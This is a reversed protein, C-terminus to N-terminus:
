ISRAHSSCESSDEGSEVLEGEEVEGEQIEFLANVEPPLPKFDKPNGYYDDLEMSKRMKRDQLYTDKRELPQGKEVRKFGLVYAAVQGQTDKTVWKCCLTNKYPQKVFDKFSSKVQQEVRSPRVPESDGGLHRKLLLHYHYGDRGKKKSEDRCEFSYLYSEVWDREDVFKDLTLKLKPLDGDRYLNITVWYFASKHYTTEIKSLRTETSVIAQMIFPDSDPSAEDPNQAKHRIIRSVNETYVKTKAQRRCKRLLARCDNEDLDDGLGKGLDKKKKAKKMRLDCERDVESDTRKPRGTAAMETRHSFVPRADIESRETRAYPPRVLTSAERAPRRRRDAMSM